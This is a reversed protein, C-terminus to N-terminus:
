DTGAVTAKIQVLGGAVVEIFHVLNNQHPMYPNLVSIDKDGKISNCNVCGLLFNDWRFRLHNYILNGAADTCGKGYIHEVHLASRSNYKECFSCFSGLENVLDPKADTWRNFGLPNGMADNRVSKVVPRM